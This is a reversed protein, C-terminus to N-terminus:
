ELTPPLCLGSSDTSKVNRRTSGCYYHISERRVLSFALFSAMPLAIAQPLRGYTRLRDYGVAQIPPFERLAIQWSMTRESLALMNPLLCDQRSLFWIGTDM